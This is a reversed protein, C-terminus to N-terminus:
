CGHLTVKEYALGAVARASPESLGHKRMLRTVLAPTPARRPAYRSGTM